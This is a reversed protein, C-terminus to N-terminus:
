EKSRPMGKICFKCAVGGVPLFPNDARQVKAVLEGRKIKHDPDITCRQPYATEFPRGRVEYDDEAAM